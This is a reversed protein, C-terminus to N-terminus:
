KNIKLKDNDSILQTIEKAEILAQEKCLYEILQKLNWGKLKASLELIEFTDPDLHILKGVLGEYRKRKYKKPVHMITYTYVLHIYM